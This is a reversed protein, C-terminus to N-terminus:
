NAVPIYATESFQPFYPRAAQRCMFVTVFRGLYDVFVVIYIETKM